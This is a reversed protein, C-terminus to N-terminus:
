TAQTTTGFSSYIKGKYAGIVEGKDKLEYTVSKDPPDPLKKLYGEGSNGVLGSLSSPYAGNKVYYVDVATGIASLDSQIRAVKAEDTLGILNPVAMAALVGIIAVAIVLELIMFGKRKKVRKRM